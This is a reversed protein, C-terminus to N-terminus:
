EAVNGLPRDFRFYPFESDAEFLRSVAERRTERVVHAAVNGKDTKEGREFSLPEEVLLAAGIRRSSGPRAANFRELAERLARPGGHVDYTPSPWLLVGIHDQDAGCLVVESILSSLDSLLAERLAAVNVFTGSSLKFDEAIRGAFLLGRAHDNADAFRVADGTHYFGEEDFLAPAAGSIGIYGSPPMMTRSKLRLEMRGNGLDLLKVQTTPPPLGIVSSPGDSWYRMAGFMCETAGYFSFIPVDAGRALRSLALMRDRVTDPLVAGGFGIFRLNAFFRDRLDTDSEMADCLMALAIPVSIYFHPSVDRLNALTTAFLAPTPKGEDLWMTGGTAVVNNFNFNGAMIHSFPMCELFQPAEGDFDLLGLAENQAVTVTLSSQPQPTAKPSGTSGSTYMIRATTEPTIADMRQAVATTPQTAIVEDWTFTPVDPLHGSIAIFMVGLECLARMADQYREADDVIVVKAGIASVCGYLRTFDSSALSYAVTVPAIAAGSRQIGIAAIGHEISPGSLYSVGDGFGVGHDILWQALANAARQAQRYTISRWAGSPERQRMFLNDPVRSTVADFLHPLSRHVPPLELTSMMRVTGDSAMTSIVAREPTRIFGVLDERGQREAVTPATPEALHDSM